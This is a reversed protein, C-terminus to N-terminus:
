DTGDFIGGQRQNALFAYASVGIISTMPITYAIGNGNRITKFKEGLLELLNRSDEEKIVSFIVTKDTDTIGLKSLIAIDATGRAATSFQMNAGHSQILDIYFDTKSRNVISILIELKNSSLKHRATERMQRAPRASKKTKEEM